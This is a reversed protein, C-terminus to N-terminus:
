PLLSVGVFDIKSFDKRVLEWFKDALKSSFKGFQGKESERCLRREWDRVIEVVKEGVENYEKQWAKPNLAYNDHLDQFKGFIELNQDIMRQYYEQHKSM